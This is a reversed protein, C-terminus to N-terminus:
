NEPVLDVIVIEPPNNFRPLLKPNSSLGRTIIMICNGINYQGYDYKSFFGNLSDYLGGKFPVIVQGGHLHGSLVMDLGWLTDAYNFCYLSEPRHACILLYENPEAGSVYQEMYSVAIENAQADQMPTDFAYEYLGGLRLMNGRVEMDVITHHLLIAGAQELEDPLSSHGSEMYALEHNGMAFLVPAEETLASILDVAVCIDQSDKNIIDGDLVILDPEQAQIRSILRANNKGFEHDHLDSILIIRIPFVIKESSVTYETVTLVHYSILIDIGCLLILVGAVVTLTKLIRKGM